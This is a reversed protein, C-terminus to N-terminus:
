KEKKSVFFREKLFINPKKQYIVPVNRQNMSAIEFDGIKPEFILIYYKKCTM